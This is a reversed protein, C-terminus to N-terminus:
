RYNTRCHNRFWWKFFKGILPVYELEHFFFKLFLLLPIVPILNGILALIYVQAVPLNYKIIGLPVALRLEFIPLTAALAITVEKSFLGTLFVIIKSKIDM